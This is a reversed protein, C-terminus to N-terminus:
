SFHEGVEVTAVDSGIAARQQEALGLLEGSDDVLESGAEGVMAVRVEDLMGQGIEDGLPDVAQGQAILVEVVVVVEAAVGQQGGDDAFEVGGALRPL